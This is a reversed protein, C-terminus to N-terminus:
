NKRHRKNEQELSAQEKLALASWEIGDNRLITLQSGYKQAENLYLKISEYALTRSGTAKLTLRYQIQTKDYLAQPYSVALNSVKNLLKIALTANEVRIGKQSLEPVLKDAEKIFLVALSDHIPLNPKFYNNIPCDYKGLNLIIAKMKELEKSDSTKSFRIFFAELTGFCKPWPSFELKLHKFHELNDKAKHYAEIALLFDFSNKTSNKFKEELSARDKADSLLYTKFLTILRNERPSNNDQELLYLKSRYVRLLYNPKLNKNLSIKNILESADKFNNKQIYIEILNLKAVVILNTDRDSSIIIENLLKISKSFDKDCDKTHAIYIRALEYKAKNSVAADMSKEIIDNLLSISEAVCPELGYNSSTLMYALTFKADFTNEVPAQDIVERYLRASEKWDKPIDKNGLRLMEAQHFNALIRTETDALCNNSVEGFYQLSIQWDKEISDEKYYIIGLALKAKAILEETKSSDVIEYYLEIARQADNEEKVSRFYLLDALLYKAKEIIKKDPTPNVQVILYELLKKAIVLDNEKVKKEAEELAQQPFYQVNYYDYDFFCDQNFLSNVNVDGM